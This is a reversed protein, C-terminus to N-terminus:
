TTAPADTTLSRVLETTTEALARDASPNNVTVRHRHHLRGGRVRWTMKEVLRALAQRRAAAATAAAAIALLGALVAAAAFVAFARRPDVRELHKM